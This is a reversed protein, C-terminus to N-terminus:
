QQQFDGKFGASKHKNLNPPSRQANRCIFYFLWIFAAAVTNGPLVAVVASPFEHM